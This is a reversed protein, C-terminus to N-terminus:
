LIRKSLKEVSQVIVEWVQRDRLLKIHGSVAVNINEMAGELYSGKDHWVYGDYEPIISIIRSNVETRKALDQVVQSDAGLEKAAYHPFLRGLASGSFPSAVAVLGELHGHPNHYVMAWKAILGGKSHAVVVVHKLNKELLLKEVLLAASPIDLVNNKLEPLIYVPHGLLSIHDALPKLFAWRCFIGPLVLVPIKGDRIYGLYHRPPNRRIYMVSMNKVLHLHDELWSKAKTLHKKMDTNYGEGALVM